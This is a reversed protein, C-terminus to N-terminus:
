TSSWGSLFSLRSSEARAQDILLNGLATPIPREAFPYRNARREAIASHLRALDHDPVDAPATLKVSALTQRDGPDPLLSVMPCYGARQAAVRLNFLAAGCGLHLARMQPDATPMAREYDARLAISRDGRRYRFRWPQANHMSPATVADRVLSEVVEDEAFSTPRM